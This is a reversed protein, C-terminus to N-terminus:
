TGRGDREDREAVVSYEADLLKGAGQTAQAQRGQTSRGRAQQPRGRGLWWARLLAVVGFILGLGLAVTLLVAGMLLAGILVIGGLLVYFVQLLPHSPMRFNYGRPPM